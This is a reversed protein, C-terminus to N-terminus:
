IGFATRFRNVDFNIAGTGQSTQNESSEQTQGNMQEWINTSEGQGEYEAIASILDKNADSVQSWSGTATIISDLKTQYDGVLAIAGNGVGEISGFTGVISNMDAGMKGIASTLSALTKASNGIRTSGAATQDAGIQM